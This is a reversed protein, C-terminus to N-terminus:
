RRLDIPELAPPETTHVRVEGWDGTLHWHTPHRTMTDINGHDAEGSADTYTAGTRSIWEVRTCARFTLHAGVYCHQEGPHPPHWDPHEPTLVADLRFRLVGPTEEIGLVFSDELYVDLDAAEHYPM